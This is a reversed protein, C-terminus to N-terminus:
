LDHVHHKFFAFKQSDIFDAFFKQSITCHGHRWPAWAIIPILINPIVMIIFHLELVGFFLLYSSNSDVVRFLLYLDLFGCRLIAFRLDLSGLECAFAVAM